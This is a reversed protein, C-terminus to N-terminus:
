RTRCIQRLLRIDKKADRAGEMEMKYPHRDAELLAKVASPHPSTYVSFSGLEEQLECELDKM